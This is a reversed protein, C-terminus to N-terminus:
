DKPQSQHRVLTTHNRGADKSAYLADDLRKLLDDLTENQGIQDVGSSITVQEVPSFDQEAVSRRLREAIEFARDPTHGPLIIMFEEGGVRFFLDHDRLQRGITNTLHKLVDDGVKHGHTDNIRKFHDIDFSIFSLPTEELDTTKLLQETAENFFRRNGIGTLVDKQAQELLQGNLEELHTIDTLIVVSLSEARNFLHASIKFIYTNDGHVYKVKHTQDPRQLLYDIWLQGNHFKQLYGEEPEFYNCVCQDANQRFQPFYEFFQRNGDFIKLGTTVIVIEEESNLINRYYDKQNKFGLVILGVILLLSVVVDMAILWTQNRSIASLTDTAQTADLPYFLLFAGLEQGSLSSLPYRIVLQEQWIASDAKMSLWKRIVQASLRNVTDQQNNLSGLIFDDIRYLTDNLETQVASTHKPNLVAMSVINKSQFYTQLSHFRTIVDLYGIREGKHAIPSTIQLGLGDKTTTINMLPSDQQTYIGLDLRNPMVPDLSSPTPQWSQFVPTGRADLLQVWLFQYRAHRSIQELLPQVKESLTEANDSHAILAPTLATQLALSVATIAKQKEQIQQDIDATLRQELQQQRVQDYLSQKYSVGWWVLGQLIILTGLLLWLWRKKQFIPNFSM